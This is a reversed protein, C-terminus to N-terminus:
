AATSALSEEAGAIKEGAAPLSNQVFLLALVIGIVAFEAGVLFARSFGDTLPSALPSHAGRLV